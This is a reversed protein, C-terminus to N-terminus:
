FFFLHQHDSGFDICMREFLRTNLASNKVFNVISIVDKM